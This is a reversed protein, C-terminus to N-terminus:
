HTVLPLVRGYPPTFHGRDQTLLWLVDYPMPERPIAVDGDTVVLVARTEPDEALHVLAPSLDSGGYGAIRYTMLAGPDIREDSTVEADCQVLRVHDVGLADCLEAITGLVGAMADDMSGSTDLVVNLKWSERKRGPLVVEGADFGRRSPRLFSRDSPAVSEVWRQLTVQWPTRYLGRLATVSQTTGGSGAGRHGRMAGIAMGLALAKEAIARIRATEAEVRDAEEPYMERECESTLVDGPENAASRGTSGEGQKGQQGRGAGGGFVRQASVTQGDWVQSKSEAQRDKRMERVIEEAARNRAGPMDLGNAPITQVGLEARLLDNIIYDHAYNFEVRDSGKAREHTRLALHLLEHALVFVLDSENLRAVFQANAVLRGSAFVGMTPVRDDLTIRTAAALGSLHPFPGTVLRLGREIRKTTEKGSVPVISM